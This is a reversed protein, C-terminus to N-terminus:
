WNRFGAQGTSTTPWVTGPFTSGFLGTGPVDPGPGTAHEPRRGRAKPGMGRRSVGRPATLANYGGRKVATGEV